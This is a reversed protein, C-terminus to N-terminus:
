HLWYEWGCCLAVALLLLRYGGLRPVRQLPPDHRRFKVLPCSRSSRLRCSPCITSRLPMKAACCSRLDFRGAELGYYEFDYRRATGHPYSAVIRLVVPANRDEIPLAELESGPLVIQLM